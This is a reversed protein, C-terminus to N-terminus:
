NKKVTICKFVKEKARENMKQTAMYICCQWGYKSQQRFDLMGTMKLSFVESLNGDGTRKCVSVSMACSCAGEGEQKETKQKKKEREEKLCVAELATHQIAETM